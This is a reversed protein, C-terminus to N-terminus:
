VMRGIIAGVILGLFGAGLAAGIVMERIEEQSQYDPHEKPLSQFLLMWKTMAKMGRNAKFPKEKPEEM